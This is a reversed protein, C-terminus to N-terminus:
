NDLVNQSFMDHASGTCIFPKKADMIPELYANLADTRFGGTIVHPDHDAIMTSVADMAKGIDLEIEAEFTNEAVLGIYYQNSNIFLGGAENIERAALMAGNWAHEGSVHNMDDLVGIKFLQDMSIGDPAGPAVYSDITPDDASVYLPIVTIVVSFLLLLLVFFEKLKTKKKYM